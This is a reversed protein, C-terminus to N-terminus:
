ALQAMNGDVDEVYWGTGSDDGSDTFDVLAGELWNGATPSEANASAKGVGNIIANTRNYTISGFEGYYLGQTSGGGINLNDNTNNSSILAFGKFVKTDVIGYRGNNDSFHGAVIVNAGENRLGETSNDDTRNGVLCARDGATDVHIGHNTANFCQNAFLGVDGANLYITSMSGGSLDNLGVISDGAGSNLSLMHGNPDNGRYYNVWAKANLEIGDKEAADV